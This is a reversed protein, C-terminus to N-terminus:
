LINIVSKSFGQSKDVLLHFPHSKSFIKAYLKLKINKIKGLALYLDHKVELLKVSPKAFTKFLLFECALYLNKASKSM